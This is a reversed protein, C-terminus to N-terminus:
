LQLLFKRSNLWMAIVAALAVGLVVLGIILGILFAKSRMSCCLKSIGAKSVQQRNESEDAPESWVNSKVLSNTIPSEHEFNPPTSTSM